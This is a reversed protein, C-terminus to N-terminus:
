YTYSYTSFITRRVMVIRKNLLLYVLFVEIISVTGGSFSLSLTQAKANNRGCYRSSLNDQYVRPLISHVLHVPLTHAINEDDRNTHADQQPRSKCDHSQEHM